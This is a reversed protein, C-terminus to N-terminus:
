VGTDAGRVQCSQGSTLPVDSRLYLCALHDCHHTAAGHAHRAKNQNHLKGNASRWATQAAQLQNPNRQPCGSLADQLSQNHAFASRPEVLRKPHAETNLLAHQRNRPQRLQRHSGVPFPPDAPKLLEQLLEETSLGNYVSMRLWLVTIAPHFRHRYVYMETCCGQLSSSAAIAQM